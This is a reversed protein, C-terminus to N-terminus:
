SIARKDVPVLKHAIKSSKVILDMYKRNATARERVHRVDVAM